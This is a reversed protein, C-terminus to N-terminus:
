PFLIILMILTKSPIKALNGLMIQRPRDLDHVLKELAAHVHYDTHFRLGQVVITLILKIYFPHQYMYWELVCMETWLEKM